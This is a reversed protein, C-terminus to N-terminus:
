VNFNFEIVSQKLVSVPILINSDGTDVVVGETLKEPESYYDVKKQLVEQSDEKVKTTFVGVPTHFVISYIYNM